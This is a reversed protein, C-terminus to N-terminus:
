ASAGLTDVEATNAQLTARAWGQLDKHKWGLDVLDTQREYRINPLAYLRAELEGGNLGVSRLYPNKLLTGSFEVGRLAYLLYELADDPVPPLTLPRPDRNTGVLGAALASSLLKSAFQVRTAMTWRELGNESVWRIVVDRTVQKREEDLRTPLFEGTFERYLADSLQLHWHCILRRTDVSMDRWSTLVALSAPFADFRARMNALLVEVRPLSRAGFWYESFARQADAPTGPVAHQWYARADEVELACKLLRTHLERTESPCHTNGQPNM